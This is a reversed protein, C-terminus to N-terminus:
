EGKKNFDFHIERPLERTVKLVAEQAKLTDSIPFARVSIREGRDLTGSYKYTFPTTGIVKGSWEVKANVPVSTIQIEYANYEYSAGNYWYNNPQVPNLQFSGLQKVAENERINHMAECSCLSLCATTIFILKLTKNAM